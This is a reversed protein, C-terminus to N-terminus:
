FLKFKSELHLTIVWILNRKARLGTQRRQLLTVSKTETEELGGQVGARGDQSGGVRDTPAVVAALAQLLVDVQGGGDHAAEVEEEDQHVVAILYM